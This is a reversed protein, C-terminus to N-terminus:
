GTAFTLGELALLGNHLALSNGEQATNGVLIM